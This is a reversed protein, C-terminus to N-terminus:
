PLTEIMDRILELEIGIKLWLCCLAHLGKTRWQLSRAFTRESITRAIGKVSEVGFVLVGVTLSFVKDM